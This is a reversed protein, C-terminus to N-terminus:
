CRGYYPVGCCLGNGYCCLNCVLNAICLKMCWGGTGDMVSGYPNQRTRYWSNGSQLQQVLQQYNPNGPEMQAATQAHQLAIVNNGLGANAVASYYYWQAPRASMGNLVNLAEQYHGSNIYNAAARFHLTEEDDSGQARGGGANGTQGYGGFAGWFDGFNGWFDGYDGYGGSGYGGTGYGGTGSGYGRYSGGSGNGSSSGYGTNAYPHEREYMIQQYAQQVLKFMEEAQDKNPNNINADPHYKRSLQRYAKKIEEDSADRSVGLVKYPDSM